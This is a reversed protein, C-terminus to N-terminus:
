DSARYVRVQVLKEEAAKDSWVKKQEVTQGQWEAGAAKMLEPQTATPNKEKIM